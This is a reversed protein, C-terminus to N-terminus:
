GQIPKSITGLPGNVGDEPYETDYAYMGAPMAEGDTSVFAERYMITIETELEGGCMELADRLQAGTLTISNTNSM